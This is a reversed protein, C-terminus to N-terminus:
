PARSTPRSIGCRISSRSGSAPSRRSIACGDYPRRPLGDPVLLDGRVARVGSSLGADRRVLGDVEHGAAALRRGVAYGIYGAAGTVLVRM